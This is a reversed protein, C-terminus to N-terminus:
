MVAGRGADAHTREYLDQCPACREAAPQVELREFPIDTGCVSCEGYSGDEIRARAVEIERLEAVDRTMAANGLDVELNVFSSDGPDPVAPAFDMVDRKEDAERELDARLGHEREDLLRTITRIQDQNLITMDAKKFEALPFYCTGADGIGFAPM